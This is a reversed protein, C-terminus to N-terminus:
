FRKGKFVSRTGQYSRVGWYMTYRKWTSVGCDKMAELFIKDCEVRSYTKTATHGTEKYLRDHVVAAKRHKGMVPIIPTLLRPISAYDSIFGVPVKILSDANTLYILEKTLEVEASGYAKTHLDSLFPM